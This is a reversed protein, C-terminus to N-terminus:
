RWRNPGTFGYPEYTGYIMHEVMAMGTTQGPGRLTAAFETGGLRQGPRLHEGGSAVDPDTVDFRSSEVVEAGRWVGPGMGDSWGRTYGFGQPHVPECVVDFTYEHERGSADTLTFTGGALRRTGAEYRFAHRARVLQVTTGDDEVLSGEFDLVHGQADEHLHFFGRQEGCEFPIWIRIARPDAPEAVVGGLPARPGMSARIGWSHDRAGYWDDVEMREGDITVWGTARTVGTYRLVDNLVVGHRHQLHRAEPWLGRAAIEVDWEIGIEGPGLVLRQRELPALVDVCLPGASLDNARPRLARSFRVTRQEGRHVMGAYGDMVNSNPHLRLGCFAYSGPRYFCFWYGDNYHRDSQAPVDVPAATQHFPFDDFPNIRWTM